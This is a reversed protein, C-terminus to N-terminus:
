AAGCFACAAGSNRAIPRTPAARAALRHFLGLMFLLSLHAPIVLPNFHGAPAAVSVGRGAARAQVQLQSLNITTTSLLSVALVFLRLATASYLLSPRGPMSACGVFWPMMLLATGFSLHLLRLSHAYDATSDAKLMRLEFCPLRGGRGPCLRCLGPARARRSAHLWAVVQVMGLALSMGSLLMWTYQVWSM